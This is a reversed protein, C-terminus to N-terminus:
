HRGGNGGGGGSGPCPRNRAPPTPRLLRAQLPFAELGSPARRSSRQFQPSLLQDRQRKVKVAAGRAIGPGVHVFVQGYTITRRLPMSRNAGRPGAAGRREPYSGTFAPAAARDVHVVCRWARGQELPPLVVAPVPPRQCVTSMVSCAATPSPFSPV